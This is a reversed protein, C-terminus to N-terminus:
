GDSRPCDSQTNLAVSTFDSNTESSMRYFLSLVECSAWSGHAMIDDVPVGARAARSTGLARLKPKRAGPARPV